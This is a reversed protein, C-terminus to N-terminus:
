KDKGGRYKDERWADYIEIIMDYNCDEGYPWKPRIIIDENLYDCMELFDKFGNLELIGCNIGNIVKLEMFFAFGLKLGAREMVEKWYEYQGSTVFVKIKM